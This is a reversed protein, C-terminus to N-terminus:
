DWTVGITEVKCDATNIHVARAGKSVEQPIYQNGLSLLKMLDLRDELTTLLEQMDATGFCSLAAVLDDGDDVTTGDVILRTHLPGLQDLIKKAQNEQGRNM